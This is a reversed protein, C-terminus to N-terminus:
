GHKLQHIALAISAATGGLALLSGAYSLIEGTRERGTKIQSSALQAFNRELNMRNVAARLEEDSMQSINLKALAKARKKESKMNNIKELKDALQSSNNLASGMAKFDKEASTRALTNATSQAKDSVPKGNNDYEVLGTYRKRGLATLSGDKNQYRRVGWKMGLIGHHVLYTDRSVIYYQEM